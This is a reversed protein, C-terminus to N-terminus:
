SILGLRFANAVAHATNKAALLRRCTALTKNVTAHSIGLAAAAEREALGAAAATLVRRQAPSLTVAKDAPGTPTSLVRALLRLLADDRRDPDPWSEQLEHM